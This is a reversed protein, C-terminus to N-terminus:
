QPLYNVFEAISSPITYDIEDSDFNRGLLEQRANELDWEPSEGSALKSLMTHVQLAEPSSKLRSWLDLLEFHIGKQVLGHSFEAIDALDKVRRVPDDMYSIRKLAMFGFPNPYMTKDTLLFSEQKAFSLGKFSFEEGSGMVQIAISNSIQNSAPHALLDIYSPHNPLAKPSFYRYAPERDRQMYKHHEILKRKFHHYDGTGSVLGISLDLDGTSRSLTPVWGQAAYLGFVSAGIILAESNVEILLRDLGPLALAIEKLWQDSKRLDPKM